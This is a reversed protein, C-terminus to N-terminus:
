AVFGDRREAEEAESLVLEAVSEGNEVRRIWRQAPNGRELLASIGDLRGDLGQRRATPLIEDLLDMIWSRMSTRRGDQWRAVDCDLSRRAAAEENAGIEDLLEAESRGAVADVDRNELLFLARAELLAAIAALEDRDAISDCIRLELRNLERPTQPGNPRAGVWLHRRNFMEGAAIRAEMWGVFAGQDAFLPVRKPTQPFLHRRTSHYGSLRGRYIPSCASLALFMAAECRLVRYLRFLEGPDTVGLSIHTSVTVIRDGYADRIFRYYDNKADTILFESTEDLPIVAGPLIRYDGFDALIRRLELRKEALESLLTEMEEHPGATYEVNRLDPETAFGSFERTIRDSLGAAHCSRDGILVEEEVGKLMLESM